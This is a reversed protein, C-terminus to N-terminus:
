QRNEKGQFPIGELEAYKEATSGKEGYITVEPCGAFIDDGFMKITTPIFVEKINTNGFAGSHIATVPYNQMVEPIETETNEGIYRLIMVNADADVVYGYEEGYEPNILEGVEETMQNLLEMEKNWYEEQKQLAHAAEEQWVMEEPCYFKWNSFVNKKMYDLEEEKLSLFVENAAYSMWMRECEQIEKQYDVSIKLTMPIVGINVIFESLNQEYSEMQQLYEQQDTVRKQAIALFESEPIGRKKLFSQVEESMVYDSLNQNQMTKMLEKIENLAKKRAQEGGDEIYTRLIDLAHNYVEAMQDCPDYLQQFEEAMAYFEEELKETMTEINQQQVITNEGSCGSLISVALVISIAIKKRKIM